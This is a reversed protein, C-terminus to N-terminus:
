KKTAQVQKLLERFDARDRLSVLDADTALALANESVKFYGQDQLKQLLAVARAGYRDALMSQETSDLKTDKRVRSVSIACASALNWVGDDTVASDNELAEVETIVRAHEGAKALALTLFV